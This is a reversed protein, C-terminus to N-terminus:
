CFRAWETQLAQMGKRFRSTLSVSVTHIARGAMFLRRKDPYPEDKVLWCPDKVFAGVRLDENGSLVLVQVLGESHQNYKDWLVVGHESTDCGMLYRFVRGKVDLQGLHPSAHALHEKARAVAVM